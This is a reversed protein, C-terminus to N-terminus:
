ALLKQDLSLMHLKEKYNKSAHNYSTVLFCWSIKLWFRDDLCANANTRYRKKFFCASVKAWHNLCGILKATTWYSQLNEYSKVVENASLRSLKCLKETTWYSQLNWVTFRTKNNKIPNDWRVIPDYFSFVLIVWFFVFHNGINTWSRLNWRGKRVVSLKLTM